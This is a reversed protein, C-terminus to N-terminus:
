GGAARAAQAIRGALFSDGRADMAGLHKRPSSGKRVLQAQLHPMLAALKKGWGDPSSMSRGPRDLLLAGLRFALEADGLAEIEGQLWAVGSPAKKAEAWREMAREFAPTPLESLLELCRGVSLKPGTERVALDLVRDLERRRHPPPAEHRRVCV